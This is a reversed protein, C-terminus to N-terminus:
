DASSMKELRWEPPTQRSLQVAQPSSVPPMLHRGDVDIQGATKLDCGTLRAPPRRHSPNWGGARGTPFPECCRYQVGRCLRVLAAIRGIIPGLRNQVREEKKRRGESRCPHDRPRWLSRPGGTAGSGMRLWQLRRLGQLPGKRRLCLVESQPSSSQYVPSM